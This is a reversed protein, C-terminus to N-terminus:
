VMIAEAGHRHDNPSSYEDQGENQATVVMEAVADTCTVSGTPGVMEAITL